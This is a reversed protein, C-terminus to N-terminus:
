CNHRGFQQQKWLRKICIGAGVDNDMDTCKTKEDNKLMREMTGPCITGSGSLLTRSDDERKSELSVPFFQTFIIETIPIIM